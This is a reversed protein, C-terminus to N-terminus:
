IVSAIQTQLTRQDRQQRHRKRGANKHLLGGARRQAMRETRLSLWQYGGLLRLGRFGAFGVFGLQHDAESM